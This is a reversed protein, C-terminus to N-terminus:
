VFPAASPSKTPPVPHPPIAHPGFGLRVAGGSFRLLVEGPGRERGEPGREGARFPHSPAVIDAAQCLARCRKAASPHGTVREWRSPLPSPSPDSGEAVTWLM